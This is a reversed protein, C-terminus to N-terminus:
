AANGRRAADFDPGEFLCLGRGGLDAAPWHPSLRDVARAGVAKVEAVVEGSQSRGRPILEADQVLYPRNLLRHGHHLIELALLVDDLRRAPVAMVVDRLDPAVVSATHLTCADDVVALDEERCVAGILIPQSLICMTAEISEPDANPWAEELDHHGAATR